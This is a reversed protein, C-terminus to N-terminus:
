EIFAVVYSQQGSRLKVLSNQRWGGVVFDKPAASGKEKQSVQLRAVPKCNKMRVKVVADATRVPYLAMVECLLFHPRAQCRRQLVPAPVQDPTFPSCGGVSGDVNVSGHGVKFVQM